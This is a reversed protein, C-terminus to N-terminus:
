VGVQNQREGIPLGVYGRIEDAAPWLTTGRAQGM